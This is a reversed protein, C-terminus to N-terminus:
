MRGCERRPVTGTLAFDLISRPRPRGKAGAAVQVRNYEGETIMPEDKGKYLQGSGQPYEFWGYCLGQTFM